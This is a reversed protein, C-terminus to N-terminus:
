FLSGFKKRIPQAAKDAQKGAAAAPEEHEGKGLPKRLRGQLWLRM